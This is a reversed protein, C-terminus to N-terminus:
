RVYRPRPQTAFRELATMSYCVRRGVRNANLVGDATLRDLTSTSINLLKASQKRSYLLRTQSFQTSM